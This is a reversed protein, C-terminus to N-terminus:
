GAARDRVRAMLYSDTYAGERFAYARLTGEVEFGFKHYLALAPANDPYVELEVRHCDLWNDALDLAAEMLASGVGRGHYDPHVMMGLSAVHAQRGSHLALGLLGIVQGDLVAVLSHFDPPPNELRDRIADRSQYPIQLTNRIVTPDTYLVALDEWDEAETGRVLVNLPRAARRSASPPAEPVPAPQPDVGRVRALLLADDYRGNRIAYGRLRAEQEFGLAELAAVRAADDAFVAFEVRRLGLWNDTLDLAAEFLRTEVDTAHYDPLLLVRLIASHRQRRSRRELWAVGVPQRRGSPQSTEVILTHAASTNNFRERVADETSYPLEFTDSLAPTNRWLPLFAEWDEGQLGRITITPGTSM